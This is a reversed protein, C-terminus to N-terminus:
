QEPRRVVTAHEAALMAAQAPGLPRDVCLIVAWREGRVRRVDLVFAQEIRGDWSAGLVDVVDGARISGALSIGTGGEITFVHAENLGAPAAPGLRDATIPEDPSLVTRPYRGQVRDRDRLYAQGPQTPVTRVGLDRPEIVEFPRITTVPVLVDAQPVRDPGTFMLLYAVGAVVFVLVALGAVRGLRLPRVAPPEGAPDPM